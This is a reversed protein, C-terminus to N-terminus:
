IGSVSWQTNGLMTTIVYDVCQAGQFGGLLAITLFIKHM